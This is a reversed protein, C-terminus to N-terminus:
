PSATFLKNCLAGLRKALEAGSLSTSTSRMSFGAGCYLDGKKSVVDCGSSARRRAQDGAGPLDAFDPSTAVSNWVMELSSDSDVTVTAGTGEFHCGIPYADRVIRIPADLIGAVDNPVFLKNCDLPAANGTASADAPASGPASQSCAATACLTCALAITKLQLFQM